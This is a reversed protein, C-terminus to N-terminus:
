SATLFNTCDDALGAVFRCFLCCSSVKISKWLVMWSVYLSGADGFVTEMNAACKCSRPRLHAVMCVYMDAIEFACLSCFMLSGM